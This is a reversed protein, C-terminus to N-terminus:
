RSFHHTTLQRGQWDGLLAGSDGSIVNEPM